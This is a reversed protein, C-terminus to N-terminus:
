VGCRKGVRQRWMSTEVRYGVQGRFQRSGGTELGDLSCGMQSDMGCVAVLSPHYQPCCSTSASPLRIHNGGSLSQWLRVFVSSSAPLWGNSQPLNGSLPTPSPVPPASPTQLRMSPAVTDVPWVEQPSSWWGFLVHISGHSQSFIHCLIVKNFM